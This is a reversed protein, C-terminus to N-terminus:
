DDSRFAVQFSVSGGRAVDLALTARRKPATAPYTRVLSSSLWVQM